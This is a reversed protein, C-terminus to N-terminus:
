PREDVGEDESDLYYDLVVADQDRSISDATGPEPPLEGSAWLHAALRRLYHVGSYSHMDWQQSPATPPLPEHHPPLHYARLVQNVPLFTREISEASGADHYGVDYGVRITLGM